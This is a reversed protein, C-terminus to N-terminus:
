RKRITVLVICLFEESLHSPNSMCNKNQLAVKRNFASTADVLLMEEMEPKDFADRQNHIALKIGRKQGVCLLLYSVM